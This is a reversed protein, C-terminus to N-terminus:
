PHLLVILIKGMAPDIETHSNEIVGVLDHHEIRFFLFGFVDACPRLGDNDIIGQQFFVLFMSVSKSHPMLSGSVTHKM